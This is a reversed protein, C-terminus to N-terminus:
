SVSPPTVPPRTPAIAVWELTSSGTAPAVTTLAKPNGVVTAGAHVSAGLAVLGTLLSVTRSVSM